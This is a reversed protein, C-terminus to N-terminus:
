KKQCLLDEKCYHFYGKASIRSDDAIEKVRKYNLDERRKLKLMDMIFESKASILKKDSINLNAREKKPIEGIYLFLLELAFLTRDVQNERAKTIYESEAIEIIRDHEEKNFKHFTMYGRIATRLKLMFPYNYTETDKIDELYGEVTYIILRQFVSQNNM